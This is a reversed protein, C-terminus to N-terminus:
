RYSVLGAPRSGVLWRNVAKQLPAELPIWIWAHILAM